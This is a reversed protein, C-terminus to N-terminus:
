EITFRVDSEPATDDPAEGNLWQVMVDPEWRYPAGNM